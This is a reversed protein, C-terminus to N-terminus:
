TSQTATSNSLWAWSKQSGWPSYGALSRQGHSKGPLVILTPKWKRTWLIKRIWPDLSWRRCQCAPEKGSLWRPLSVLCKSCTLKLVATSVADCLSAGLTGPFFSTNKSPTAHHQVYLMLFSTNCSTPCAVDSAPFPLGSWYEQRSFEMSLPAQGAVVWATVPLCVRSLSRACVCLRPVSHKCPGFSCHKTSSYNIGTGLADGKCGPSHIRVSGLCDNCDLLGM